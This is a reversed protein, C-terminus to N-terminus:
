GWFPAGVHIMIAAGDVPFKAEINKQAYRAHSRQARGGEELTFGLYLTAPQNKKMFKLSREQKLIRSCMTNRGNGLMGEDSFAQWIDRGDSDETIPIGIYASVENRFRDNDAPETKTDHYLLITKERGYKDAVVKAAVASALGGSFAVVHKM